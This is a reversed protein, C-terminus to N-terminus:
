PNECYGDLILLRYDGIPETLNNFHKIYNMIMSDNFWGNDTVALTCGSEVILEIFDRFVRKGKIIYFGKTSAKGVSNITDCNTVWERKNNMTKRVKKEKAPVIVRSKYFIRIASGSEDM